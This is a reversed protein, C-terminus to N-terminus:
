AHLAVQNKLDFPTGFLSFSEGTSKLENYVKQIDTTSVLWMGSRHFSMSPTAIKKLRYKAKPANGTIKLLYTKM